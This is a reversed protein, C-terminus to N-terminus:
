HSSNLRTSKRDLLGQLLRDVAPEISPELVSPALFRGAMVEALPDAGQGRGFRRVGTLTEWLVLGVSYLDSRADLPEGRAQEPSLYPLKGRVMNAQTHSVADRMKAIGFDAVKVEGNCSLLVNHPSIDRHIVGLPRGQGDALEHAYQLGFLVKSAVHCALEPSWPAPIRELATKLDLGQVFEMVLYYQRRDRNFEFVQVVNPHDLRAALTAERVFMDVFEADESMHERIRKIAVVKQFGGPGTAMARYVDAMGGSAIRELVQFKGVFDQM